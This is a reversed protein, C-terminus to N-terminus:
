VSLPAQIQVFVVVILDDVAEHGVIERHKHGVRPNLFRARLVARSELAERVEEYSGLLVINRKLADDSFHRTGGGLPEFDRLSTEEFFAVLGVYGNEVVVVDLDIRFSRVEGWLADLVNEYVAFGDYFVFYIGGFGCAFNNEFFLVM